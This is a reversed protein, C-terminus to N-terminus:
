TLWERIIRVGAEMAILVCAWQVLSLHSLLPDSWLEYLSHTMWTTINLDREETFAKQYANVHSAFIMMRSALKSLDIWMSRGYTEKNDINWYSEKWTESYCAYYNIVVWSGSSTQVKPWTKKLCFPCGSTSGLTRGIPSLTSKWWKGESHNRFPITITWCDM